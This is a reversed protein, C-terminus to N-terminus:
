RKFYIMIEEGWDARSAYGYGPMDLVAVKVDTDGGSGKLAGGTAPDSAALGYAHMVKTKGPRPGTKNLGPSMLLANLLTSKGVNSRGIFAVEPILTGDVPRNQQRWETATWIKRPKYKKFFETAARLAELTPKQTNFYRSKVNKYTAAVSTSVVKFCRRQQELFFIRHHLRDELQARCSFCVPARM